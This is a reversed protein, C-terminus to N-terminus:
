SFGGENWKWGKNGENDGKEYTRKKMCIFIESEMRGLCFFSSMKENKDRANM